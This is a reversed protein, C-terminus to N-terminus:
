DLREASEGERFKRRNIIPNPQYIGRSTWCVFEGVRLYMYTRGAFPACYGRAEIVECMRDHWEPDLEGRSRSAYEHPDGRFPKRAEQWAARRVFAAPSFEREPDYPETM